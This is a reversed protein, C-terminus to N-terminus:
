NTGTAYKLLKEQTAEKKTVEGSIKGEHLVIIRDCLGLIEQMESSILIIAIGSEALETIIRYIETKAGIDIGRTPEDFILVQPMKMLWKGLVVKQQNGGSLTGVIQDMHPTKIKLSKIYKNTEDVIKKNNIVNMKSLDKTSPLTINEKVSMSLVLGTNKRDETILAIGCDIADKPSKINVKKSDIFIEGNDLKTIGFIGEAVETRGAGMLGALGLIEGAHVDFSINEFKDKQTLNSVSLKKEKIVANNVPFIETLDRDVMKKILGDEDIEKSMYTGIYKGDRFVTIEDSIRFVEDMKHTIYIICCGEAKLKNILQFLTDVERDTIASSPEDMIIIDSNYSIAKAIEVMQTQAVTLEKMKTQADIHLGVNELLKKSEMNMKSYDIVFTGKFYFERGLFLNEAITMELIPNLEQHIMAIGNNISDKPCSFKVKKGKLIIEGEDPHVMGALTKMLTSKGAGNEGMLAHVTGKRLKLSVNDLAKVGPYYKSINNMELVYEKTM